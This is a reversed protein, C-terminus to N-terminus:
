PRAAAVPCDLAVAFQARWERAAKPSDVLVGEVGLCAAEHYADINNVGFAVVHAPGAASFCRMAAPTWLNARVPTAAEGLTFREVVTMDRSWEFGAWIGAQPPAECRQALAVNLLRARTADRTEFQRAQPYNAWADRYSADTSYFRVRSWARHEDIVRAVAAVQPAAPLAKMDLIVPMTGPVSALADSLTPIPTPQSRYPFTTSGDPLTRRFNWGANLQVLEAATRSAVPGSAPTLTSLDAPRYLVPVGDASLQVTLWIQDAGNHLAGDIARLTNEPYDATGGRHAVIAPLSPGGGDAEALNCGTLSMGVIAVWALIGRRMGEEM